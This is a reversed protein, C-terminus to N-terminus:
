CKGVYSNGNRINSVTSRNVDLARAIDANAEGCRIRRMVEQVKAQTIHKRNGGATRNKEMADAMNDSRTGLFLHKPNVCWRNDCRHCVDFGDPIDGNFLLFSKRHAGM